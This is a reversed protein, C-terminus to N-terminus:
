EMERVSKEIALFHTVVHSKSYLPLIEVECNYESGDKRYNVLQVTVAEKRKVAERIKSKTHVSTKIGQLFSPSKNLAFEAHYGTMTKFGPSAWCIIQNLDTVVLADFPKGQLAEWDIKWGHKHSLIGFLYLDQLNKRSGCGSTIADWCMLPHLLARSRKLQKVNVPSRKDALCIDLAMLNIYEKM